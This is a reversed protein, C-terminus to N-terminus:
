SQQMEVEACQASSNGSGLFSQFAKRIAASAEAVALRNVPVSEKLAQRKEFLSKHAQVFHPPYGGEKKDKRAVKTARALSPVIARASAGAVAAATRAAGPVAIDRGFSEALAKLVFVQDEHQPLSQLAKMAAAYATAIRNPCQGLSIQALRSVRGACTKDEGSQIPPPVTEFRRKSAM